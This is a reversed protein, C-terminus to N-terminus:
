QNAAACAAAEYRIVPAGEWGQAAQLPDAPQPSRSADLWLWFRELYTKQKTKRLATASTRSPALHREM